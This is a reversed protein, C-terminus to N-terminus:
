TSRMRSIKLRQKEYSGYKLNDQIIEKSQAIM